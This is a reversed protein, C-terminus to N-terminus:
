GGRGGSRGADDGTAAGDDLPRQGEQAAEDLLDGIHQAQASAEAGNEYEGSVREGGVGPPAGARIDRGELMTDDSASRGLHQKQRESM